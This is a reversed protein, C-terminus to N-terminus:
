LSITDSPVDENSSIGGISISEPDSDDQTGDEVESRDALQIVVQDVITENSDASPRLLSKLLDEADKILAPDASFKEMSSQISGVNSFNKNLGNYEFRTGRQQIRGRKKLVDILFGLNDWGNPSKETPFTFPMLVKRFPTACKNKVNIIKIQNGIRGKEKVGTIQDIVNEDTIQGGFELKVRISSYFRPAYGGPTTHQEMVNFGSATGTNQETVRGGSIKARMQNILLIACNKKAAVQVMKGVMLGILRPHAGVRAEDSASAEILAKPKCADISDLVILDVKTNDDRHLLLDFMDCVEEGFSPQVLAFNSENPEPIKYTNRALLPDFAHEIDIFLVNLGKSCTTGAAKLAIATKGSHEMGYIEMLRGRPIGGNALDFGIVGSELWDIKRRPDYVCDKNMPGAKAKVKSLFGAFAKSTM